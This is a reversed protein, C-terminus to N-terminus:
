TYCTCWTQTVLCYLRLRFVVFSWVYQHYLFKYAAMSVKWTIKALKRSFLYWNTINKTVNRSSKNGLLRLVILIWINKVRFINGTESDGSKTKDKKHKKRSKEEVITVIFRVNLSNLTHLITQKTGFIIVFRRGGHQSWTSSEIRSKLACAYTYM